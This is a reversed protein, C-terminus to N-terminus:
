SREGCVHSAFEDLTGQSSFDLLEVVVRVLKSDVQRTLFHDVLQRRAEPSFEREREIALQELRNRYEFVALDPAYDLENLVELLKHARGSIEDDSLHAHATKPIDGAVEGRTGAESGM